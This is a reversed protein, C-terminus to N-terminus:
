VDIRYVCSVEWGDVLIASSLEQGDFLYHEYGSFESLYAMYAGIWGFAILIKKTIALPILAVPPLSTTVDEPNLM